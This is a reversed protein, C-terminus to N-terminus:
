YLGMWREPMEVVDPTDGAQVMTLFKEFAQGWPLSVVEVKIGPNASEFEAIQKKLFETRPPSTIVEVLKITTDALAGSASIALGAVAALMFTLRKM